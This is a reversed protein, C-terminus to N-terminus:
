GHASWRAYYEVLPETQTHHNGATKKITEERDDDRQILPEGTIDDKNDVKPPNFIMHYVRGSGPSNEARCAAYSRRTPVDIEVFCFRPCAPLKMADAQSPESAMLYFREQM